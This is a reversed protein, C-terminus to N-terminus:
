LSTVKILDIKLNPIGSFDDGNATLLTAEMSIAHAAIMRDFDRVRNFGVRSIIRKYEMVAATDFALVQVSERLETEPAVLRPDLAVGRELEALCLASTVPIGDLEEIRKIIDPQAKAAYILVNTDLM